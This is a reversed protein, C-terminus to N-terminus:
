QRVCAPDNVVIIKLLEDGLQALVLVRKGLAMILEFLLILTIQILCILLQSGEDFM